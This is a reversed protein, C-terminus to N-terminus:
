VVFEPANVPVSVNLRVAVTVSAAPLVDRAEVGTVPLISVVAGFAGTIVVVDVDVFLVLGVIVPVASAM